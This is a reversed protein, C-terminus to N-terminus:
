IWQTQCIPDDLYIYEYTAMTVVDSQIFADASHLTIYNQRRWHSLPGETGGSCPVLMSALLHQRATQKGFGVHSATITWLDVKVASFAKEKDVLSDGPDHIVSTVGVLCQFPTQRRAGSRLVKVSIILYNLPPHRLM